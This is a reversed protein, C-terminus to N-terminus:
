WPRSEPRMRVGRWRGAAKDPKAFLAMAEAQDACPCFHIGPVDVEWLILRWTHGSAEKRQAVEYVYRETAAIRDGNNCNGTASDTVSLKADMRLAVPTYTPNDAHFFHFTDLWHHVAEDRLPRQGGRRQRSASPASPRSQPRAPNSRIQNM